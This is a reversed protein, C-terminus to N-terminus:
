GLGIVGSLVGRLQGTLAVIGGALLEVIFRYTLLYVTLRRAGCHVWWVLWIM